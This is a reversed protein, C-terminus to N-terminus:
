CGGLLKNIMEDQLDQLLEYKADLYNFRTDLRENDLDFVLKHKRFSDDGNLRRCVELEVESEAKIKSIELLEDCISDLQENIYNFKAVVSYDAMQLAQELQDETTEDQEIIKRFVDELTMRECLM